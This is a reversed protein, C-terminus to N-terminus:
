FNGYSQQGQGFTPPTAAEARNWFDEPPMGLGSVISSMGGRMSPLMNARARPTMGGMLRYLLQQPNMRPQQVTGGEAMPRPMQGVPGGWAGGGPQPAGINGPAGGGLASLRNSMQVLRQGMSLPSQQGYRPMGQWGPRGGFMGGGGPQPRGLGMNYRDAGMPPRVGVGGGPPIMAQRRRQMIQQMLPSLQSTMGPQPRGQGMNYQMVM